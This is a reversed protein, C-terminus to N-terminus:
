GGRGGGGFEGIFAIVCLCLLFKSIIARSQAVSLRINSTRPSISLTRGTRSTAPIVSQMSAGRRAVKGRKPTPPSM